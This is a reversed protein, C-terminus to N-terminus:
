IREALCIAAFPTSTLELFSLRSWLSQMPFTLAYGSRRICSLAQREVASTPSLPGIRYYMLRTAM